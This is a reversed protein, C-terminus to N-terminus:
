PKTVYTAKSLSDHDPKERNPVKDRLAIKAGKQLKGAFAEDVDLVVPM